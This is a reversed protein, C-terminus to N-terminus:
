KGCVVLINGKTSVDPKRQTGWVCIGSSGDANAANDILAPGYSFNNLSCSVSQVKTTPPCSAKIEWFKGRACASINEEICYDQLVVQKQIVTTSNSLPPPPPSPPPASISPGVAIWRGSFNRTRGGGVDLSYRFGNADADVVAPNGNGLHLDATGTLQVTPTGGFATSFDIRPCVYPPPFPPATRQPVTCSYQGIETQTEAFLPYTLQAQVVVALMAGCRASM